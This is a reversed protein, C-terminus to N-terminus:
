EGSVRCADRGDDPVSFYVSDEKEYSDGLLFLASQALVATEGRYIINIPADGILRGVRLADGDTELSLVCGRYVFKMSVKNWVPIKKPEIHIANDLVRVGFVGRLMAYWAGAMCGAHVGQWAIGFIDEVDVLASQRLYKVFKFPMDNDVSNIANVPYTLSSSAECVSEYYDWNERYNKGNMPILNMYGYLLMVDPQKIIQSLHYLGSTKMQFGKAANGDAEILEPSLDFYGDFQPIMGNPQEPLYMNEAVRAFEEAEAASVGLREGDKYKEYYAYGRELVFKVLYNTYADNDVFPHHEDTGTVNLLVYKGKRVTVKSAWYRCIEFLIEFGAERMLDLDGTNVFYNIVSYAVDATIHIQLHPHRAYCWVKEKGDVSCVFPFRAGKCGEAKANERADPLQRYRYLISNRAVEPFLHIFYPMQYIEADWWVFNNYREGSLAKASLGHVSSTFDGSILTHYSAFRVAADSEDDGEIVVDQLNFKESYVALHRDYEERYSGCKALTEAAIEYLSVNQPYDIAAGVFVIKELTVQEDEQLEFDYRVGYVGDEEYRAATEKAGCLASKAAVVFDCGYKKGAKATYFLTGDAGYDVRKDIATKQGGTKVNTDIGSLVRVRGSFNLAKVRVRQCYLHVDSFSAFREFVLQVCQRKSNQWVVTRCLTEDEEMLLRNWQLIKGEWPYFTEGDIEIRVTLIDALNVVSDQYEFNRLKVEDIYYKKMYENDAFPEMVEIIEDFVGRVYCGQIRISGFEEFSGRVGLYGNGTTMLAAHKGENSMEYCTENIANKEVKLM